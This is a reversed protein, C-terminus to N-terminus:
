IKIIVVVPVQLVTWFLILVALVVILKAKAMHVEERLVAAGKRGHGTGVIPPFKSRSLM